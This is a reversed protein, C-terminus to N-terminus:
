RCITYSSVAHIHKFVVNGYIEPPRTVFLNFMTPREILWHSGQGSAMQAKTKSPLITLDQTCRRSAGRTHRLKPCGFFLRMVPDVIYTIFVFPLEITTLFTM